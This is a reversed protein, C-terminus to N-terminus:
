LDAVFVFYIIKKVQWVPNGSVTSKMTQTREITKSYTEWFSFNREDFELLRLRIGAEM